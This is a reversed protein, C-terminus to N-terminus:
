GGFMGGAGFMGGGAAAAGLSGLMQFPSNAMNANHAQMGYQGAMNAAGLYNAGQAVGANSFSPMQPTQVQQGSMAANMQNLAWGERQQQEAIAQQRLQQQYAASQMQQQYGQNGFQLQENAAQQRQQNAFQAAQLQRQFQADASGGANQQLQQQENFQQQRLANAQQAAQMEQSFQQSGSQQQENFAQQRQADTMQGSQMGQGFQQAQEQARQARQAETFQGAQLQQGFNQGMEAMRAARQQETLQAGAVDQGFQQGMEGAYQARQADSLQQGALDQGFQQGYEAAQQQRQQDSLQQGALDQGFQQGAEGARAARQAETFQGGALDQGFQQGMEGARAARQSEGFQGAGMDMEYQSMREGMRAQRQGEDYQGGSLDMNFQQMREGARAARQAEQQQARNLSEQHQRDGIGFQQNLAQQSAQNYFNGQTDIESVGQQRAQLERMFQNQQEQGGRALADASMRGTQEGQQNRLDRLANDYAPTGPRLGQNRLASEQEAQARQMLPGQLSMDRDFQTQAFRDQYQGGSQLGELGSYDLSRQIDEPNYQGMTLAQGAQGLDGMQSSVSRGVNGLNGMQTNINAGGFMGLNGMQTQPGQGAPGLNGMGTNVGGFQGLDGMGSNVGGFQGLDGMGSDVQGGVAGPDGMGTQPGQGAQGIGSMDGQPVDGFPMGGGGRPQPQDSPWGGVQNQGGGYQSPPSQRKQNQMGDGMGTGGSQFASEQGGGAQPTQGWGALDGYQPMGEPPPAAQPNPFGGMQPLNQGYFDPASPTGAVEPLTNWFDSPTQMEREANGMLGQALESRGAQMAQQAELAQQQAPSLEITQDWTTVPLGTAPDIGASSEWTNQGWPTYQNPRNAHTQGTVLAQNAESTQEAAGRYDPAAPADKKGM